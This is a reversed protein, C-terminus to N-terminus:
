FILDPLVNSLEVKFILGRDGFDVCSKECEWSHIQAALKTLIQGGTRFIADLFFTRGMTSSSSFTNAGHKFSFLFHRVLSMKCVVGNYWYMIIAKDKVFFHGRMKMKSPAYQTPCTGECYAGLNQSLM